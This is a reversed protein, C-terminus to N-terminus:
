GNVCLHAEVIIDVLVKTLSLLVAEMKWTKVSLPARVTSMRMLPLSNIVGVYLVLTHAGM